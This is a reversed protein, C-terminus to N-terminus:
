VLRTFSRDISDGQGGISSKSYLFGSEFFYRRKEDIPRNYKALTVRIERGDYRRGDVLFLSQFVSFDSVERLLTNPTKETSSASSDLAM